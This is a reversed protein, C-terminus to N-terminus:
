RRPDRLKRAHRVSLAPQRAAHTVARFAAAKVLVDSRITKKRSTSQVENADIPPERRLQRRIAFMPSFSASIWDEAANRSVAL